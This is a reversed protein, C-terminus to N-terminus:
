IGNPHLRDAQGFFVDALEPELVVAAKQEATLEGASSLAGVLLCAATTLVVLGAQTLWSPRNRRRM